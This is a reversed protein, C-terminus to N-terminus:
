ALVITYKACRKNNATQSKHEVKFTRHGDLYAQWAKQNERFQCLGIYKNETTVMFCLEENIIELDDTLTFTEGERLFKVNQMNHSPQESVNITATQIYITTM